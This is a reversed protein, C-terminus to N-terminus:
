PKTLEIRCVPFVTHQYDRGSMRGMSGFAYYAGYWQPSQQSEYVGYAYGVGNKDSVAVSSILSESYQLLAITAFAESKFYNRGKGEPDNLNAVTSNWLKETATTNTMSSNIRHYIILSLEDVDPLYWNGLGYYQKGLADTLAQPEYYMALLFAPFLALEVAGLNSKSYGIDNIYVYSNSSINQLTTLVNNLRDKGLYTLTSPDDIYSTSILKSGTAASESARVTVNDQSLANLFNNALTLYQRQYQLESTNDLKSIISTDHAITGSVTNGARRGDDVDKYYPTEKSVLSQLFNKYTQQLTTLNNTYNYSSNYYEAPSLYTNKISDKSLVRIDYVEKGQANSLQNCYFVMGVLNAREDYESSFTGDAYAFDGVSPVYFGVNLTTDFTKTSTSGMNNYKITTTIVCSGETGEVINLRPEYMNPLSVGTLAKTIKYSIDLYYHGNSHKTIPVDNGSLYLGLPIVGSKEMTGAKNLTITTVDTANFDFVLDGLYINGFKEVLLQKTKWNISAKTDKSGIRIKGVLKVTDIQALKACVVESLYFDAPINLIEVYTTETTSTFKDLIYEVIGNNNRGDITLKTLITGPNFDFSQLQPYYDIYVDKVCSPLLVNQISFSKPLIVQNFGRSGNAEQIHLKQGPNLVDEIELAYVEGPNNDDEVNETSGLVLTKLRNCGTFDLCKPNFLANQLVLHEVNELYDVVDLIENSTNDISYAGDQCVVTSANPFNLFGNFHETGSKICVTKYLDTNEWSSGLTLAETDYKLQLEVQEGHVVINNTLSVKKYNLNSDYYVKDILSDYQLMSAGKDISGAGINPYNYSIFSTYETAINVTKNGSEASGGAFSISDNTVKKAGNVYTSLLLVRDRLYEIESELCSGHSLSVPYVVQNNTFDKWSKHSNDQSLSKYFDTPTKAYVTQATEYYIESQHNYAVSPINKQVQLFYEELKTGETDPWSTGTAFELLAKLENKVEEVFLIDFNYFFGSHLDGWLHELDTNFPPELLYYPKVQQGNNDTKFITDLDDQYLRIKNDGNGTNKYYYPSRKKIAELTYTNGTETVVENSIQVEKFSNNIVYGYKKDESHTTITEISVDQGDPTTYKDTFIDGVIQFYTNKARNDTGAVLRIFAQHYAVDNVDMYHHVVIKFAEAMCEQYSILESAQTLDDVSYEYAIFRNGTRYQDYAPDNFFAYEPSTPNGRSANRYANCIDVVNLTEWETGNHYLGAPVWRAVQSSNTIGAEWAKEWRYIDGVNTAKGGITAGEGCVLKYKSMDVGNITPDNVDIDFDVYRLSSFDFTYIFNYFEAFRKVNDKASDEFEFFLNDKDEDYGDGETCGFDVDWADARKDTSNESGTGPDFVITEDNILLGTLYDPDGSTTKGSFQHYYNLGSQPTSSYDTIKTSTASDWKGNNYNGWIQMSAWPTKFNAASNNNDAGELMLYQPTADSYGSTPKDGKASGWTQFGLFYCKEFDIDDWTLTTLKDEPVNVFFYFFDDELVAKRGGNMWDKNHAPNAMYGDHFLKTAGQKHSQMSSAYNVKGVLKEIKIDSGPMQYYKYTVPEDASFESEPTFNFKSYSTNHFMYKKASSGQAKIVGKGEAINQPALRGSHIKDGPYHVLLTAVSADDKRNGYYPPLTEEPLAVLLVKRDKYQKNPYSTSTFNNLCKGISITGILHQKESLQDVRFDESTYLIDNDSYYANKSSLLPLYSIYNQLVEGCALAKEYTRFVYLNINSNEPAIQFPFNATNSLQTRNVSIVRNITGNVYIKLCAFAEANKSYNINERSYFMDYMREYTSPKYAPDYTIVIHQIEGMRFDARSANIVHEPKSFNEPEYNLFLHKPCLTLNGITLLPDNFDNSGYTKFAMEVSFAGNLLSDGSRRKLLKPNKFVGSTPSVKFTTLTLNQEDIKVSEVQLGNSINLDPNLEDTNFVNGNSIQSFDLIEGKTYQLYKSGGEPEIITVSKFNRYQVSGTNSLSFFQSTNSSTSNDDKIFVKIYSKVETSTTSTNPIEIYSTYDLNEGNDSELLTLYIEKFPSAKKAEEITTINNLDKQNDSKLVIIEINGSIKNTTVVKFLRSMNCNYITDPVETVLARASRTAETQYIFSIPIWNSCLTGKVVRLYLDHVGESLNPLNLQLSNLSQGNLPITQPNSSGDLYYNWSYDVFSDDVGKLTFGSLTSSTIIYPNDYSLELKKINFSPKFYVTNSVDGEKYTIGLQQNALAYRFMSSIDYSLNEGPTINLVLSAATNNKEGPKNFWEFTITQLSNDAFTNGMLNGTRIFNFNIEASLNDSYNVIVEPTTSTYTTGSIKISNISCEVSYTPNANIITTECVTKGFANKGVLKQNGVVPDSFYYEFDVVSDELKDKIFEEVVSGQLEEFKTWSGDSNETIQLSNYKKDYIKTSM